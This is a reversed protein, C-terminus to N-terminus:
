GMFEVLGAPAFSTVVRKHVNNCLPTNVSLRPEFPVYTILLCGGFLCIQSEDGTLNAWSVRHALM